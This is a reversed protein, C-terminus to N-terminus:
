KIKADTATVVEGSVSLAGPALRVSGPSGDAPTVLVTRVSGDAARQVKSVTGLTAGSASRVTMGTRLGTLDADASTASALGANANANAVGQDAARSPGMRRPSASTDGSVTGRTTAGVDVSGPGVRAAGGLGAGAGAGIGVGGAGSGVGVGGAGGVVSGGGLIQASAAGALTLGSIAAILTLKLNM